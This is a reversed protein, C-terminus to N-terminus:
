PCPHRQGDYGLYTGSAPDYSRYRQACSSAADGAPVVAVATGDDYYSNDYYTDDYYYPDSYYAYSGLGAGIVAGAAVGPWFGHRHGHWRGGSWNRGQWNGGNWATRSGTWTGGTGRNFGTAPAIAANTGAFRSAPAVGGAGSFRAASAAGGMPAGGGVRMGGGGFHGGGAFGGGGGGIRAGGGFGGGGGIHAGGGGGGVHGGRQAFSQSPAALVLALAAVGSLLKIKPSIM